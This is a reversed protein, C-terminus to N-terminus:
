KNLAEKLNKVPKFTVTKSEKVHLSEGTKPNRCERAARTKVKFSGFKHVTVDNGAVFEAMIAEFIADVAKEAQTKSVKNELVSHVKAVLDAKTM